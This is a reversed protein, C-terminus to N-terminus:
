ASGEPVAIREYLFVSEGVAIRDGEMLQCRNDEECRHDNHYVPVPHAWVELWHAQMKDSWNIAFRQRAVYLEKMLIDSNQSRGAIMRRRELIFFDGTNPGEITRLGYVM